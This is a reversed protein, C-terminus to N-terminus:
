GRNLGFMVRNILIIIIGNVFLDRTSDIRMADKETQTRTQTHSLSISLPSKNSEHSHLELLTRLKM